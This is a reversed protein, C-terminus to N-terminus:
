ATLDRVRVENTSASLLNLRHGPRSFEWNDSLKGQATLSAAMLKDDFAGSRNRLAFFFNFKGTGDLDTKLVDLLGEDAITGSSQPLSANMLLPRINKLVARDVLNS